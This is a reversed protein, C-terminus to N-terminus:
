PADVEAKIRYGIAPETVLYQPRAPDKELKRRLQNVYVRLYESQREYEPGWVERLLQRQTIVAGANKMLTVFLKYELPTLHVESGGSFVLRRALDIRLHGVVIVSGVSNQSARAVRRLAARIRAALEADGFPKVIYDDAGAELARVEDREGRTASIVIVPEDYWERLEVILSVGGKDRLAPDLVIADPRYARAMHLADCWTAAEIVRFAESRLIARVLRRLQKDDDILLIRPKQLIM